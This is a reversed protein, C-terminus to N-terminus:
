VRAEASAALPRRGDFFRKLTDAAARRVSPQRDGCSMRELLPEARGSDLRILERMAHWRVFHRRDDLLEEIADFAAPGGTMRLLTALMQLRSPEQGVAQTRILSGSGTECIAALPVNGSTLRTQIAVVSAEPALYEVEEFAGLRIERGADIVLSRGPRASVGGRAFDTADDFPTISWIRVPISGKLVRVSSPAGDFKITRTEPAPEEKRTQLAAPSLASLVCSLGRSNVLVIASYFSGRVGPFQSVYADTAAFAEKEHRLLTRIRRMTFHASIGDFVEQVEGGLGSLMTQIREQDREVRKKLALRTEATAAAEFRSEM